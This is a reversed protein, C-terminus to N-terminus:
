LWRSLFPFQKSLLEKAERYAYLNTMKTILWYTLACVALSVALSIWQNPIFASSLLAEALIILSVFLYPAVTRIQQALSYGLIKKTYYTNFCLAIFGYIAAGICMVKIGFFMTIFLIGFAVSKKIIELRLVLDSRGKVYLLNLNITTIFTPLLGFCIIQMLPVCDLWKDTLLLSILPRACGCIGMLVPFIIFSALQIYKDYVRLLRENDDQIQSLVPFSVRNLASSITGSAVGPFKGAQSYLGVDAASFRKGIVLPYASDYLISILTAVLMKSSYSFLRHFSEKSFILKPFWKVFAIKAITGALAATLSQIVLAWAGMGRYACIIGLIGSSIATILSIITQSKFDVRITLIVGHISSLSGIILLLSTVRLLSKLIPQEYYSAVAPAIIFLIAYFVVSMVLNIIYVTSFDRESPNKTRVLAGALGGDIFLQSLALFIGLMGVLGYDTPTLLRALIIGIIFNVGRTLIQEVFSWSVGTVTKQKLDDAM